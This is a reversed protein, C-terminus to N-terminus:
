NPRFAFLGGNRTVVLLTNGALVPAAAPGSSDTALRLLPEGKDVSLWHVLGGADVFAVTPGVVLPAGLGRYLLAESTWAVEGSATRWATLRDSADSGVVFQENGAVGEIGGVTKAWQLNGREANVCGVASQFARMCVSDGVRLLPSVLDALREVENTGRPSAVPVEWRVSGNLPDLGALRPGQGVLLTNKFPALVGGQALTLPEGPRQQSWLKRGDLVDFAVIRRDVGLVFVREGAVLPATVVKTGLPKRWLPKGADLVVLDGERTVVAAFRGDSGVGAVIRADVNARWIERGTDAQLAAVTGNGSAVTFVGNNVAVALPFDVDGIRQSWVQRGAIPAAIPELPKPKPKEPGSSCAALCVALLGALWRGTGRRGMTV